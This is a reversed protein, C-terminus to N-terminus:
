NLIFVLIYLSVQFAPQKLSGPGGPSHPPPGSTVPARLHRSSAGKPHVCYSTGKLTFEAGEWSKSFNANCLTFHLLVNIHNVSFLGGHTLLYLM